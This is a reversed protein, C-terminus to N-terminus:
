DRGHEVELRDLGVLSEEVLALIVTLADYVSFDVDYNAAHQITILLAQTKQLRRIEEALSTPPKRRRSM